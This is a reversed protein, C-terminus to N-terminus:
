CITVYAQSVHNAKSLRRCAQFETSTHDLSWMDLQISFTHHVLNGQCVPTAASHVILDLEWRVWTAPTKTQRTKCLCLLDVYNWRPGRFANVASYSTCSLDGHVRHAWCLAWLVFDVMSLNHISGQQAVLDLERRM